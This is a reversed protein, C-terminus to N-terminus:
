TDMARALQSTVFATEACKRGSMVDLEEEHSRLDEVLEEDSLEQGHKKIEVLSSLNSYKLESIAKVAHSREADMMESSSTTSNDDFLSNKADAQNVLSALRQAQRLGDRSLPSDM